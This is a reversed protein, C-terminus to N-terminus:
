PKAVSQRTILKTPLVINRDKIKKGEIIDLLLNMATTGMQKKPQKITTLLPDTYLSMLINDFGVVSIEEPIKIKLEKLARIVGVAIFDSANMIVSPINKCNLIKKVAEHSGQLENLRLAESIVVIDPDFVLKNDKLGKCYGQFRKEVTTQNDYTYSIYGIRKHGLGHLYNVTERMAEFNDILVSPVKADGLERDAVVVPVKDDNLAKIHDFSNYGSIFVFGDVFQQRLIEIGKKEELVDYYTCTLLVNYKRQRAIEEVGRIVQAFFQNSIDPVIVAVTRISKTKLGRAIINPTYNLSNAIELIKEKTEKKVYRSNNLANSVTSISVGAEKAVDKISIVEYKKKL